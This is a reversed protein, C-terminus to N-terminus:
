GGNHDEQVYREFPCRVCVWKQTCPIDSETWQEFHSCPDLEKPDEQNVSDMAVECPYIISSVGVMGFGTAM